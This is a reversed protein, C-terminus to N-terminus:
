RDRNLFNRPLISALWRREGDPNPLLTLRPDNRMFPVIGIQDDAEESGPKLAKGEIFTPAVYIIVGVIFTDTQPDFYTFRGRKAPTVPKPEQNKKTGIGLRELM